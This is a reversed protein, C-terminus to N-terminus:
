YFIPRDQTRGKDFDKERKAWTSLRLPIEFTKELEYKMKTGSKNKETWYLIFSNLMTEPYINSFDKVALSFKDKREEIKKEIINKEERREEIRITNRDNNAQLVTTNGDNNWRKLINKRNTECKRDYEQMRRILSSSFFYGDHEEFLGFKTIIADLKEKSVQFRRSLPEVLWLQLKYGPQKMLHEILMWYLGYGEMGLQMVLLMIKPDDLANADHPFWRSDKGTNMGKAM